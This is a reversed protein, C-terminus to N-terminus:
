LRRLSCNLSDNSARGEDADGTQPWHADTTGRLRGYSEITDTCVGTTTAGTPDCDNPCLGLKRFIASFLSEAVLGETEDREISM